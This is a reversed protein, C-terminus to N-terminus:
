RYEDSVCMAMPSTVEYRHPPAIPWAACRWTMMAGDRPKGTETLLAEIGVPSPKKEDFSNGGYIRFFRSAIGLGQLIYNSIRVPKNTLM